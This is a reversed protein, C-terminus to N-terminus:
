YRPFEGLSYIVSMVPIILLLFVRAQEVKNSEGKVFVHNLDTLITKIANKM